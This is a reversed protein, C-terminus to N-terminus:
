VFALRHNTVAIRDSAVFVHANDTTQTQKGAVFFFSKQLICTGVQNACRSLAKLLGVEGKKKKKQKGKKPSQPQLL